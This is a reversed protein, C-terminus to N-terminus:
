RLQYEQIKNFIQRSSINLRRAAEAVNENCERLVWKLYAAESWMKYEKWSLIEPPLPSNEANNSESDLPQLNCLIPLADESVNGRDALLVMREIINKLERINGPYEYDMLFQRVRPHISLINVKTESQCFRLFYSILDPIDERHDRLPPIRIIITSIRYFFDARFLHEHIMPLLDRNTATILHFDSFGATSNKGNCTQASELAQLIRAQLSLSLDSIEDLFLTSHDALKFKVAPSVPTETVECDFLKSYLFSDNYGTCNVEIFADSPRGSCAHLYKAVVEKGSGSEGTLLINAHSGAARECFDMVKQFRPNKSELHFRRRFARKEREKMHFEGKGM